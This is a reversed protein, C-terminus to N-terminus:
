PHPATLLSINLIIFEAPQLPAFGIQINIVGNDIDSQTTTTADCKVFFAQQPQAAIFAGQRWLGTFFNNVALRISAWLTPNNPEFVVWQLGTQLSQEIYTAFRRINVYQYDSNTAGATTRAGWVVTGPGPFTRIANIAAAGLQQNAADNIALAPTADAITAGLGAPAKWVGRTNDTNAYIGAVAGSSGIERSAGPHLPDAISLRPFYIAACNRATLGTNAFWAEIAAPTPITKSSPIDAIYFANRSECATQAALMVTHMDAPALTSTAPISLLNFPTTFSNLASELASAFAGTSPEPAIRLVIADQGGSNFFQQIQYSAESRPDLGGFTQQFEFFSPVLTPTNAPGASFFDIFATVATPSDGPISPPLLPREVIIPNSM